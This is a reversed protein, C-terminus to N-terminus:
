QVLSNEKAFRLWAADEGKFRAFKRVVERLIAHCDWSQELIKKLQEKINAFLGEPIKKALAM